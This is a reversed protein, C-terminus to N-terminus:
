AVEVKSVSIDVTILGTAGVRQMAIAQGQPIIITSALRLDFLTDVASMDEFLMIGESTLGTIDTDDRATILPVKSSGLNRSTLTTTNSGSFVPTGVVRHILLRTLVTSSMRFDTVTIDDIGDNRMYFFYDNAGAPTVQFFASYYDGNINSQRDEFRSVSSVLLRHFSDVVATQGSSADQIIAM